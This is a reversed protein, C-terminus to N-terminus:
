SRESMPRGRRTDGFYLAGGSFVGTAIDLHAPLTKSSNTPTLSSTFSSTSARLEWLTNADPAYTM